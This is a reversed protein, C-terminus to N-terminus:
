GCPSSGLRFASEGRSFGSSVGCVAASRGPRLQCGPLPLSFHDKREAASEPAARIRECKRAGTLARLVERSRAKSPSPSAAARCSDSFRSVRIDSAHAASARRSRELLRNYPVRRSCATRGSAEPLPRRGASTRRSPLRREKLREPRHPASVCTSFLNQGAAEDTRRRCLLRHFRSLIRM